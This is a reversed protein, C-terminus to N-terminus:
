KVVEPVRFTISGNPFLFKQDESDVMQRLAEIQIGQGEVQMALTNVRQELKAYNSNTTACGPLLLALLLLRM